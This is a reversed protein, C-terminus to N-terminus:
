NELNLKTGCSSCFESDDPLKKGCRHCYIADPASATGDSRGVPQSCCLVDEKSFLIIPGKGEIKRNVLFIGITVAIIALVSLLLLGLGDGTHCMALVAIIAAVLGTGDILGGFFFLFYKKALHKKSKKDWASTFVFFDFLAMGVLLAASYLVGVSWTGSFLLCISYLYYILAALSGWCAIMLLFMENYARERDGPKNPDYQIYAM